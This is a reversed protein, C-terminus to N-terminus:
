NAQKPKIWVVRFDLSNLTEEFSGDVTLAVDQENIIDRATLSEPLGLEKLNFHAQVKRAEKGLNSIVAVLGEEDRSYLSVKTDNSDTTVWQRNEWYPMWKAQHRGFLDMAKWLKPEV